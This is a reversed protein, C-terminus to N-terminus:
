EDVSMEMYLTGMFILDYTLELDLARNGDEMWGVFSIDHGKEFFRGFMEEEDSDPNLRHNVATGDVSQDRIDGFPTVLRGDFAFDVYEVVRQDDYYLYLFVQSEEDKIQISDILDNEPSDLLCHYEQGSSRDLEVAEGCGLVFLTV